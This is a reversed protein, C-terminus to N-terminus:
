ADFPESEDYFAAYGEALQVGIDEVACDLLEKAYPHEPDIGLAACSAVFDPDQKAFM